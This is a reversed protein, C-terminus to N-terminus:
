IMMYSMMGESIGSETVQKRMCNMIKMIQKLNCPEDYRTTRMTKVAETWEFTTLESLFSTEVELSVTETRLM